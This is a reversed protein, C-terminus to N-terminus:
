SAAHGEDENQFQDMSKLYAEEFKEGFEEPNFVEFVIGKGPLGCETTLYLAAIWASVVTKPDIPRGPMTGAAVKENWKVAQQTADDMRRPRWERKVETGMFDREIWLDFLQVEWQQSVPNKLVSAGQMGDEFHWWFGGNRRELIFLDVIAQAQAVAKRNIWHADLRNMGNQVATRSDRTFSVNYNM